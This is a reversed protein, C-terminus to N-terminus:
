RLLILALLKVSVCRWMFPTEWLACADPPQLHCPAGAFPFPSLFHNCSLRPPHISGASPVRFREPLGKPSRKRTLAARSLHPIAPPFVPRLERLKLHAERAAVRAAPAPHRVFTGAARTPEAAPGRPCSPEITRRSTFSGAKKPM